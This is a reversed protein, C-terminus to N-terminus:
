RVGGPVLRRRLAGSWADALLVLGLLTYLYTWVEGYHLNEFSAALYYGLTPYGFFGLVASSRLACEFRYFAYATMDPLAQPLLGFLFIQAPSAGASRLAEAADRPAEDLMESFVKALTGSYPIAIALVASFQGVGFAALFLVAWILEHVSRLLAIFVRSVGYIAPSTVNLCRGWACRGGHASGVWTATSAALGLFLGVVVSLGLAAAALMVTVRAAELAKLPLPVTGEPVASEYTWAPSFARSFLEGALALGGSGPILDRPDLGLEWAAWLGVLAITGLVLGRAGVLM